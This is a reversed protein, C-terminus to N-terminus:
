WRKGGWNSPAPFGWSAATSVGSVTAGTSGDVSSAVQKTLNAIASEYKVKLLQYPSRESNIQEPFFAIEIQMAALISAVAQADDWLYEPIEDGIIDAVEPMALMIIQEAEAATPTTETTFTGQRAGYQNVTRSLIHTAVQRISPQWESPEANYIPDTYVRDGTQDVFSIRYWGFEISANETTFARAMPDSPDADLPVLPVSDILTWPGNNSPGEEIDAQAWPFNDYRPAPIYDGFSVVTM